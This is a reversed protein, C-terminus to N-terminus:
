PQTQAQAQVQPQSLDRQNARPKAFRAHAAIGPYQKRLDQLVEKAIEASSSRTAAQMELNIKPM